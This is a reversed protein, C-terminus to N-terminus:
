TAAPQIASGPHLRAAELLARWEERNALPKGDRTQWGRVQWNQVWLSAGKVLYSSDEPLFSQGQLFEHLGPAFNAALQPYLRIDSLKQRLGGPFVQVAHPALTFKRALFCRRILGALALKARNVGAGGDPAPRACNGLV